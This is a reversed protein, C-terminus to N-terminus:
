YIASVRIHQYHALQFGHFSVQLALDFAEGITLTIQEALKDSLFLYCIHKGEDNMAIYSFVRKDQKDDACFSIKHLPHRHIIIKTKSDIVTVGHVNIQIEVKKPKAASSSTLGRNVQAQFRIAHIADRVVHAGKPESVEKEGLFRVGYEVRGRM